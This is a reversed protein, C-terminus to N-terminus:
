GDIENEGEIITIVRNDEVLSQVFALEESYTEFLMGDFSANSNFSNKIPTFMEYFEDESLQKM